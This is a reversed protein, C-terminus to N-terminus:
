ATMKGRDPDAHRAQVTGQGNYSSLINTLIDRSAYAYALGFALLVYGLLIHKDSTFYLLEGLTSSRDPGSMVWQQSKLDDLLYLHLLGQV